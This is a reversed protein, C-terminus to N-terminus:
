GRVRLYQCFNNLRQDYEQSNIIAQFSKEIDEIPIYALAYFKKCLLHFQPENKYAKGLGCYQSASITNTNQFKISVTCM